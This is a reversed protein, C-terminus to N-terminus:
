PRAEARKPFPRSRIAPGRRKRGGTLRKIKAREGAERATKAKHCDVCRLALNDLGWYRRADPAERDVLWLPFEHDVELRCHVPRVPTALGNQVARYLNPNGREMGVAAWYSKSKEFRTVAGEEAGCDRCRPGDREVLKHYAARLHVAINYADSCPKHWHRRRKDNAEIKEGCWRCYGVPSNWHPVPPRRLQTM